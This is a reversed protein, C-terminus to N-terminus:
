SKSFGAFIGGVFHLVGNPLQIDESIGESREGAMSEVMFGRTAIVAGGANISGAANISRGNSTQAPIDLVAGRPAAVGNVTNFFISQNGQTGRIELMPDGAAVTTDGYIIHHTEPAANTYPDGLSFMKNAKLDFLKVGGVHFAIDRVWTQGQGLSSRIFAGQLTPYTMNSFALDVYDGSGYGGAELNLAVRENGWINVRGLNSTTGHKWIKGIEYFDPGYKTQQFNEAPIVEHPGSLGDITVKPLTANGEIWTNHLAVAQWATFQNGGQVDWYFVGGANFQIVTNIFTWQGIGATTDMVLFVMKDYANMQGGTFLDAGAHMVGNTSNTVQSGRAWYFYNGTSGSVNDFINGINGYCKQIAKDLNFFYVNTMKVRGILEDGTRYSDPEGFAFGVGEKTGAGELSLNSISPYRWSPEQYMNKIVPQSSSAARLKTFGEGAGNINFFGNLVLNCVYTGKPIFVENGTDIAAQIAASDNTVGDGKAGFDKVNAVDAFRGELSRETNSGTAIPQGLKHVWDASTKVQGETQIMHNSIDNPIFEPPETGIVVIVEEGAVLPRTFKVEQKVVDYSFSLGLTKRLGNIYVSNVSEFRHTVKITTEGGLASGHNYLWNIFRSKGAIISDDIGTLRAEASSLRVDQEENWTTNSDKVTNLQGMTCSDSSDVGLGLNTLKYGWMNMDNRNVFDEGFRGESIEQTLYLQWLFSNNVNVQGFTNGNKFDSYPKNLPTERSILVRSGKPPVPTVTVRKYQVDVSVNFPANEVYAKIHGKDIFPISLPYVGSVGDSTFKSYSLAM